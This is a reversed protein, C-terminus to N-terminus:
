PKVGLLDLIRHRFSRSARLEAITAELESNRAREKAVWRRYMNLLTGGLDARQSEWFGEIQRLRRRQNHIRRSLRKELPTMTMDETIKPSASLM